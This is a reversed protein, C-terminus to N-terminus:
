GGSPNHQNLFSTIERLMAMRTGSGSLWHDEGKLTVMKSDKGAKKLATHMRKSQNIPVVTDDKGHILLVPATFKDAAFYPSIERLRERVKRSDGILNKWYDVVWHNGSLYREDVIMRIVDSVGAVSVVCRYLDGSYAGGALASYGGYSAGMICVREPDAYGSEVLAHVGDDVDTQM